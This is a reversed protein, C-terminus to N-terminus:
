QVRGTLRVTVETAQSIVRAMAVYLEDALEKELDPEVIQPLTTKLARSSIGRKEPWACCCIRRM